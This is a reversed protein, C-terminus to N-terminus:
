VSFGAGNLGGVRSVTSCSWCIPQRRVVGFSMVFVGFVLLASIGCGIWLARVTAFYQVENRKWAFLILMGAVLFMCFVFGALSILGCLPTELVDSELFVSMDANGSSALRELFGNLLPSITLRSWKYYVCKNDAVLIVRLDPAFVFADIRSKCRFAEIVFVQLRVGNRLEYQVPEAKGSCVLAIAANRQCLESRVVFCIFCLIVFMGILDLWMLSKLFLCRVRQKSMVVMEVM